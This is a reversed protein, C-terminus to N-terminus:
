GGATEDGSDDAPAKVESAAARQNEREEALLKLLMGRKVNDTEVSLLQVFREINKAHIFNDIIDM